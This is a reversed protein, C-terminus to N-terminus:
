SESLEKKQNELIEKKKKIVEEELSKKIAEQRFKDRQRIRKIKDAQIKEITNRSKQRSETIRKKVVAEEDLLEQIVASANIDDSHNLYYELIDQKCFNTDILGSNVTALFLENNESTISEKFSTKVDRVFSDNIKSLERLKNLYEDKDLSKDGSEIAFGDKKINHVDEIYKEIKEKSASFEPIHKLKEIADVNNYIVDGLASYVNPNQAFILTALLFLIVLKKM